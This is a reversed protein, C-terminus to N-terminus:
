VAMWCYILQDERQARQALGRLETVVELLRGAASPIDPDDDIQAWLEAFEGRRDDPIGALTDRVDAPLEEIVAGEKEYLSDDPLAEWEEPPPHVTVTRVLDPSYPIGRVLAILQGLTVDPDIGKADVADFAPMGRMPKEVARPDEPKEAAAQRSAAHYYDYFVGM